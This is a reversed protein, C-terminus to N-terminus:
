SQKEKAEKAAKAAAVMQLIGGKKSADIVPSQGTPQEAQVAVPQAAQIATFKTVEEGPAFWRAGLCPEGTPECGLAKFFKDPGFDEWNYKGPAVFRCGGDRDSDAATNVKVLTESVREFFLIDSFQKSLSGGHPGSSSVPQTHQSVLVRNKGTGSYKEYVYSHGVFIVHCPLTHMRNLVMALFRGQWGYGDWETKKADFLDLHNEEAFQVLTSEVLATWSDLVVVDNRTFLSPQFKIHSHAKNLMGPFAGRKEQEDWVFSAEKRFFRACFQAFVPTTDTNVANCILLRKRGEPSIQQVIGAGDDGDLLVVNYGLEACRAAWWTKQSKGKGLLLMRLYYDAFAQEDSAFPM